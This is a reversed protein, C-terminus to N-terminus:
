AVDALLLASAAHDALTLTVAVQEESVHIRRRPECIFRGALHGRTIVPLDFGGLGLGVQIPSWRTGRLELEGSRLLVPREGIAPPDLEFRCDRLRLLEVLSRAIDLMVLGAADGEAIEAAVRHLTLVHDNRTRRQSRPVRISSTRRRRGSEAIAAGVLLVLVGTLRDGPDRIRLSGYPEAWLLDFALAGSLAALIPTVQDDVVAAVAIAGVLVVAVDAAPVDSRLPLAAYALGAPM